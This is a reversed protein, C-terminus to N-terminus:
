FHEFVGVLESVLITGFGSRLQPVLIEMILTVVMSFILSVFTCNGMILKSISDTFHSLLTVSNSASSLVNTIVILFVVGSSFSGDLPDVRESVSGVHKLTTHIDLCCSHDLPVSPFVEAM